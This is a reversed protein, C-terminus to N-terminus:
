SEFWGTVRDQCTLTLRSALGPSVSLLADRALLPTNNKESLHGVVLHELGTHDLRAVLGAAQRNSLHGLSGGVRKQLAPPYPGTALMETDHNCEIFLSTCPTLIDVIHPTIMGADTLVGFRSRASGFVYQVPELADHPVPYPAIEISGIRFPAQHSHILNPKPLRGLRPCRFTGHTLWVPLDYRRALAGVGRLHDQHEHTLLVADLTDSAVDIQSLRRELERLTFGCDLLLRTSGDEILTANGRSGSGLSVFRM